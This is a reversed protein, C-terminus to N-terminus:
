TQSAHMMLHAQIEFRRGTQGAIELCRSICDYQKLVVTQDNVCMIKEIVTGLKIEGVGRNLVPSDPLRVGLRSLRTSPIPPPTPNM